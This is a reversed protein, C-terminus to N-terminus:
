VAEKFESGAVTKKQKRRAQQSHGPRCTVTVIAKYVVLQQLGCLVVM